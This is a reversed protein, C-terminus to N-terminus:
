IHTLFNLIDAISTILQAAGKKILDNTGISNESYISGPVAFVDRNYDLACRATILAGSHNPAEIVITAIAIGAIIRNRKPFHYKAGSMHPEYESIIGGDYKLIKEALSCNGRPSINNIGTGLVAITKGKAALAGEHAATDIGYALGSVITYGGKALHYSFEHATQFGRESPQRTGVIAIFTDHPNCAGHMYLQRPPDSIERLLPPYVASAKTLIQMLFKTYWLHIFLYHILPIADYM